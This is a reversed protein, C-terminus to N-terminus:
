LSLWLVSTVVGSQLVSFGLVAIGLTCARQFRRDRTTDQVPRSRVVHVSEQLLSVHAEGGRSGTGDPGAEPLGESCRPPRKWVAGTIEEACIVVVFTAALLPLCRRSVSSALM